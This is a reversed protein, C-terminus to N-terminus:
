ILDTRPVLITVFTPFAAGLSLDTVCPCLSACRHPRCTSASPVATRLPRLLRASSRTVSAHLQNLIDRSRHQLSWSLWTSPGPWCGAWPQCLSITVAWLTDAAPPGHMGGPLQEPSPGHPAPCLRHLARLRRHMPSQPSAGPGVGSLHTLVQLPPGLRSPISMATTALVDRSTKGHLGTLSVRTELPGIPTHCGPGPHCLSM